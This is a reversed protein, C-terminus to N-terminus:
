LELTDLPNKVRKLHEKSVHTYIQTTNLNSHGLLEQIIVVDIGSDMLHTAYSHRLKHPTVQKTIGARKASNKVFKQVSRVSLKGNRGMFLYDQNLPLHQIYQKLEVAIIDSLPFFRDKAGKGMRVWGAKENLDLDKIKLNVLESVRLGTSYLFKTILRTKRSGTSAIIKKIEDKTLVEFFTKPIKPAKLKVIDKKIVERYFFKLAAQKVIITRPAVKNRIQEAFYSKIDDEGLHELEQKYTKIFQKVHNKYTKITNESFGRLQLETELNNLMVETM